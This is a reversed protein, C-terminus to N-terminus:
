CPSVVKYNKMNELITYMNTVEGVKLEHALGYFELCLGCSLIEVDKMEKLDNIVNKNKTTLYIGENYFMIYKPLKDQEKLAYVFGELLKKSFGEDGTGMKDSKFVVIYDDEVVLCTENENKVLTVKYEKESIKEVNADYSLLEAMKELNKTAIFNDVEIMLENTDNERIEKRALVVPRPCALGKANITKM